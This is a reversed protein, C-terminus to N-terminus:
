EFAPLIYDEMIEIPPNNSNFNGGTFVAVLNLEKIVFIYQGGFGAAYFCNYTNSGINFDRIWWQYGYSNTASVNIHVQTSKDVWAKSIVQIDKWKGDNLYLLGLKLMDRPTNRFDLPEGIGPLWNSEILDSYYIKAFNALDIDITNILIRNLTISSGTNYEFKSGPVSVLPKSLVYTHASSFPTSYLGSLDTSENWELGSYMGLLHELYISEKGGNALYDLEPFLVHLPVQDNAIYGKDIAIGVIAGIFSKNVSQLEHAINRNYNIFEGSSNTGSYYEELVLNNNVSLLISHIENYKGQRIEDIANYIKNEDSLVNNVDMNNLGDGIIDPIKYKYKAIADVLISSSENLSPSVELTNNYDSGLIWSITALGESNTIISTGNNIRGEGSIIRINLNAGAVSNGSADEIKIIIDDPLITNQLGIQNNGSILILKYDSFEEFEINKNCGIFILFFCFVCLTNYFTVYNNKKSLFFKNFM